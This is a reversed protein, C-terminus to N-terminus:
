EYTKNDRKRRGERKVWKMERDVILEKKIIKEVNNRREDKTYEENNNEERKGGKKGDEKKKRELPTYFPFSLHLPLNWPCCFKM